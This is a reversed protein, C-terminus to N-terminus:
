RFLLGGVYFGIAVIGCIWFIGWVSQADKESHM